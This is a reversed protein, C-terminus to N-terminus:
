NLANTSFNLCVVVSLKHTFFGRFHNRRNHTHIRNEAMYNLASIHDLEASM